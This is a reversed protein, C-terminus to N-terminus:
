QAGRTAQRLKAKELAAADRYLVFAAGQERAFQAVCVLGSTASGFPKGTCVNICRVAGSPSSFNVFAYRLNRM